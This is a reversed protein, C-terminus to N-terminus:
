KKLNFAASLVATSPSSPPTAAPSIMMPEEPTAAGNSSTGQNVNMRELASRLDKSKFSDKILTLVDMATKIDHKEATIWLPESQTWWHPHSTNPFPTMLFLEHTVNDYMYNQIFGHNEAYRGTTISYWNPYSNATSQSSPPTAAPSIMMPEEPNAAGNSNTGQNVNMRELASRLDKPKFSDHTLYDMQDSYEEATLSSMFHIANITNSYHSSKVAFRSKLEDGMAPRVREICKLRNNMSYKLLSKNDSKLRMAM